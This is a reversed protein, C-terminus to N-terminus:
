VWQDVIERLRGTQKTRSVIRNVEDMLARNSKSTAIGIFDETFPEGVVALSTEDKLLGAKRGSMVYDYIIADVSGGKLDALMQKPDDRVVILSSDTYKAAEKEWTSEKVTGIKKGRLDQVSKIQEDGKRAILVMGNNLYPVSFLMDKSREPTISIGSVGLDVRGEKIDFLLEDWKEYSKLVLEANLGSAVEGAVDVDLGAMNGSADFYELPEYPPNIGVVLRGSSKIKALSADDPQGSTDHKNLYYGSIVIAALLIAAALVGFAIKKDM